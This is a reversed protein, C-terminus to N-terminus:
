ASNWEQSLREKRSILEEPLVIRANHREKKVFNTKRKEPLNKSSVSDQFYTEGVVASSSIRDDATSISFIITKSDPPFCIEFTGQNTNSQNLTLRWAFFKFRCRKDFINSIM